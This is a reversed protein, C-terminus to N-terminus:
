EEKKEPKTARTKKPVALGAAELAAAQEETVEMDGAVLDLGTAPHYGDVKCEVKM